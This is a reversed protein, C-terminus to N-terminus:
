SYEISVNLSRQEVLPHRWAIHGLGDMTISRTYCGNTNDAAMIMLRDVAAPGMRGFISTMAETVWDCDYADALRLARLLPIITSQTGIAGLIFSAHVVAWWEPVKKTWHFQNSVIGSLLPVMREGRRAIEDVAARPLRDEAWYLQETLKEDSLKQYKTM